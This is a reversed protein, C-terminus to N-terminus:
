VVPTIPDERQLFMNFQIFAQLSSQYFLLYVETMPDDFLAHLRRFRSKNEDNSLFYSKLGPFQQLVRTVARDLSLWRTNVHKVIKRYDVDCFFYFEALSAKRKTSKDFLYYIYIVM